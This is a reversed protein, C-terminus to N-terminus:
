FPSTFYAVVQRVTRHLACVLLLASLSSSTSTSAMDPRIIFRCSLRSWPCLSRASPCHSARLDSPFAPLRVQFGARTLANYIENADITGSRNSDAAFFAAQLSALFKHMAAYEYFDPWFFTLVAMGHLSHVLANVGIHRNGDRDFVRVLKSAVDLGLPVGNFTVSLTSNFSRKLCCFSFLSSTSGAIENATITGSGDRDVSRFWAQIEYM